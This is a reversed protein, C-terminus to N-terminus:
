EFSWKVKKILNNVKFSLCQHFLWHNLWIMIVMHLNSHKPTLHSYITTTDTDSCHYSVPSIKPSFNSDRAQTRSVVLVLTLSSTGFTGNSNDLCEYVYPLVCFSVTSCTSCPVWASFMCDLFSSVPLSNNFYSLCQVYCYVQESFM